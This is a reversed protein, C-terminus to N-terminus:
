YKIGTILANVHAPTTNSESETLAKSLVTKDPYGKQAIFAFSGRFGVDSVDVGLEQLTPLAGSLNKSPEDATVGVIVTGDDLQQLYDSLQSAATESAYTDFFRCEEVSCSFPDVLLTNVGRCNIGRRNSLHGCWSGQWVAEGNLKVHGIRRTGDDNSSYALVDLSCKATFSMVNILAMTKLSEHEPADMGEFAMVWGEGKRGGGEKEGKEKEGGKRKGERGKGGM